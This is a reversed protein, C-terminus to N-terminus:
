RYRRTRKENIDHPRYKQSLNCDYKGPAINKLSVKGGKARAIDHCLQWSDLANLKCESQQCVACTGAISVGHQTLWVAAKFMSCKRKWYRASIVPHNGCEIQPRKDDRIVLTFKFCNTECSCVSCLAFISGGFLRKSENIAKIPSIGHFKQTGTLVCQDAMLSTIDDSSCGLKMLEEAQENMVRQLAHEKTLDIRVSSNTAYEVIQDIQNNDILENSLKVNPTESYEESLNVDDYSPPTNDAIYPILYECKIHKALSQLIISGSFYCFEAAM